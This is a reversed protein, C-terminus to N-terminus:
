EMGNYDIEYGDEHAQKSRMIYEKEDIIKGNRKDRLLLLLLVINSEKEGVLEADSWWEKVGEFDEDSNIILDVARKWNKECEIGDLYCLASNIICFADTRGQLLDNIAMDTNITEGRRKMYALNNCVALNNPDERYLTLFSEEAVDKEGRCYAEIAMSMRENAINSESYEIERLIEAQNDMIYMRTEEADMGKGICSQITDLLSSVLRWEEDTELSKIISEGDEASEYILGAYVNTYGNEDKDNDTYVIYNKNNGKNEFTFLVDLEKQEGQGDAEVVIKSNEYLEKSEIIDRVIQTELQMSERSLPLRRVWEQAQEANVMAYAYYRNRLEINKEEKYLQEYTEKLKILIRVYTRKRNQKEKDLDIAKIIDEKAKELYHAQKKLDAENDALTQYTTARNQLADGNQPNKLISMEYDKLAADYQGSEDYCSGRNSYLASLMDTKTEDGIREIALTYYHRAREKEGKKDWAVGVCNFYAALDWGNEKAKEYAEIAEDYKRLDDYYSGKYWYAEYYSPYESIIRDLGVLKERTTGTHIIEQIELLYRSKKTAEKSRRIERDIKDLRNDIDKPAKFAVLGGFLTVVTFLISVIAVVKDIAADAKDDIENIYEFVIKENSINNEGEIQIFTVKDKLEEVTTRMHVLEITNIACITMGLLWIAIQFLSFWSLRTRKRKRGSM